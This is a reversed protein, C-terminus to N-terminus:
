EGGADLALIRGDAEGEFAEAEFAGLLGEVAEADGGDGCAGGGEGVAGRAQVRERREGDEVAAVGEDVGGIALEKAVRGANTAVIRDVDPQSM